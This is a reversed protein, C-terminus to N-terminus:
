VMRRFIRGFVYGIGIAAGLAALPRERVFAVFTENAKQLTGQLEKTRAGLDRVGAGRRFGRAETAYLGEPVGDVSGAHTDNEGM